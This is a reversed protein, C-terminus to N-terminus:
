PSCCSGTRPTGGPPRGGQQPADPPAPLSDDGWRAIVFWMPVLVTEFAIFFVLLDLAVFTALAGGVVALVCAVLGPTNGAPPQVRVLHWCVALGLLATLLVLPASIGDLGLRLRVDLAPIWALDLFTSRLWTTRRRLAGGRATAMAAVILTLAAVVAGFRTALRTSIGHRCRDPHRCCDAPGAVGGLPLAVLAVMLPGTM